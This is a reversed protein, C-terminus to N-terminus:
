YGRRIENIYDQAAEEYGAMIIKQAYEVDQNAANQLCNIYNKASSVYLDMAYKDNSYPKMPKFCAPSPDYELKRGYSTKFEGEPGSVYGAGMAGTAVGVGLLFMVIASQRKM